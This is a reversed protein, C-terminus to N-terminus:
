FCYCLYEPISLTVTGNIDTTKKNINNSKTSSEKM